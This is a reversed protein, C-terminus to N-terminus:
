KVVAKDAQRGAEVTLGPEVIARAGTKECLLPLQMPNIFSNNWLFNPLSEEIYSLTLSHRNTVCRLDSMISHM